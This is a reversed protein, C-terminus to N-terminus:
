LSRRHANKEKILSQIEEPLHANATTTLPVAILIANNIITTLKIVHSEIEEQTKINFLLNIHSNIYSRFTKWNAKSWNFKRSEEIKDPKENINVLVPNHDSSLYNLSKPISYNNINKFLFIDIISPLGRTPFHTAENPASIIFNNDCCFKLLLNGKENSTICNWSVHRANLDGMIINSGKLNKIIELDQYILKKSLPIYVSTVRLNKNGTKVVISVSEINKFSIPELSHILNEKILIAVGGGTANRDSRYGKVKFNDAPSLKTENLGIIDIENM